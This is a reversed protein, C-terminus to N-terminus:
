LENVTYLQLAEWAWTVAVILKIPNNYFSKEGPLKQIARKYGIEVEMKRIILPVLYVIKNGIGAGWCCNASISQAMRRYLLSPCVVGTMGCAACFDVYAFSREEKDVERNKNEFDVTKSHRRPNILVLYLEQM